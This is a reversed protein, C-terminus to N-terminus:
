LNKWIASALSIRLQYVNSLSFLILVPRSAFMIHVIVRVLESFHCSEVPFFLLEGDVNPFDQCVPCYSGRLIRVLIYYSEVPFFLLEGDVNPFDQCVPCYSGRLIRVLIYSQVM